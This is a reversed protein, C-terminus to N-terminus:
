IQRSSDNNFAESSYSLVIGQLLSKITIMCLCYTYMTHKWTILNKARLRTNTGKYKDIKVKM